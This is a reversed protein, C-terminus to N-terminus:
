IKPLNKIVDPTLIGGSIILKSAEELSMDLHILESCPVFILVGSTPNPTTPVFVSILDQGSKEAIERCAPLSLFGIMWVGKRPFEFLVPKKFVQNDSSLVMEFVKKFLSFVQNIFPIKEFLGIYFGYLKQGVFNSVFLGMLFIILLTGVLGVGLFDPIYGELRLNRLISLGWSDVMRALWYFSFLTLATPFTVLIGTFFIRKLNFKM